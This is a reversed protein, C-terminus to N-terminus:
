PNAIVKGAEGSGRIDLIGHLRADFTAFHHEFWDALRDRLLDFGEDPDIAFKDMLDRIQELLEEHDEKHSDYEVYTAERMLREELAFHASIAIYVDGLFQEITAADRLTQMEDYIENILMIMQAHEFDVSEVGIAFETKWALLPM